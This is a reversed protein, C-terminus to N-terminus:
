RFGDEPRRRSRAVLGFNEVDVIRMPAIISRCIPIWRGLPLHSGGRACPQPSPSTSVHGCVGYNPAACISLLQSPQFSLMAPSGWERAERLVTSDRHRQLGVRGPLLNANATQPPAIPAMM